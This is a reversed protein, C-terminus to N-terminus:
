GQRCQVHQPGVKGERDITRQQGPKQDDKWGAGTGQMFDQGRAHARDTHTTLAMIRKKVERERLMLGLWYGTAAPQGKHTLRPKLAAPLRVPLAPSTASIVCFGDAHSVSGGPEWPSLRNRSASDWSAIPTLLAMHYM